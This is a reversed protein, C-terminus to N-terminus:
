FPFPFIISSHYLACFLCTQLVKAENLFVYVPFQVFPESPLSVRGSFRPEIGAGVSHSVAM